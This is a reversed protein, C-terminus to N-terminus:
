VDSHPLNTFSGKLAELSFGEEGVDWGHLKKFEKRRNKRAQITPSLLKGAQVSQCLNQKIEATLSAGLGGSNVFCIFFSILYM